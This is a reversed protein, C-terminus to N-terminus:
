RYHLTWENPEPPLCSTFLEPALKQTAAHDAHVTDISFEAIDLLNFGPGNAGLWEELFAGVARDIPKASRRFSGLTNGSLIVEEGGDGLSVGYDPEDNQYVDVHLRGAESAKWDFAGAANTTRSIDGCVEDQVLCAHSPVLHQQISYGNSFSKVCKCDQVAWPCACTKCSCLVHM